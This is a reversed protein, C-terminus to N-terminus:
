NNANGLEALLSLYNEMLFFFLWLSSFFIWLFFIDAYRRLLKCVFRKFEYNSVLKAIKLNVALWLPSKWPLQCKELIDIKLNQSIIIIAYWVCWNINWGVKYRYDTVLRGEIKEFYSKKPNIVKPFVGTAIIFMLHRISFLVALDPIKWTM